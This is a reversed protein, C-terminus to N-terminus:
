RKDLTRAWVASLLDSLLLTRRFRHLLVLYVACGVVLSLGFTVASTGFAWRVALGALGFCLLAAVAVVAFGRGVPSRVGLALRVQVLPAVNIFMISVAWAVAAGTMGYPPILLLNLTANLVLSTFANALNLGSRGSMLLVVTVNGTALNVLMAASLIIMASEGAAFEPGFLGMVFPAWAILVLYLPWTLAMLSWTGLRYLEEVSRHRGSTLLASIRPAITMGVAQLAYAGAISLRSAAAYIGAERTSRMAGVLLVDVWTVTIGLIGALGRAASFRWFESALERLPATPEPAARDHVRTRLLRALWLAGGVFALAAPVAWGVAVATGGLGAAVVCLVLVLRLAPLGVNQIAVYPLMSGLGRTGSLIVITPAALPLAAAFIRVTAVASGEDAGHFLLAALQPALVFIAAAAAVSLGLVPAIAVAVTRGLEASRGLVRMRPLSRVLGTNAGFQAVAAAITFLAVAELFVGAGAAGLGRTVVLVLLFQLAASVVVGALALTGGRALTRVEGSSRGGVTRDGAAAPAFASASM